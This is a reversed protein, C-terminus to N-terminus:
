SMPSCRSSRSASSATTRNRGKSSGREATPRAHALRVVRLLDLHALEQVLEEAGEVEDARRRLDPVAELEVDLQHEHRLREDEHEGQQERDHAAKGRRAAAITYVSKKRPVGRM